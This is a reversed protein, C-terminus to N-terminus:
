WDALSIALRYFLDIPLWRIASNCGIRPIARVSCFLLMLKMFGIRHRSFGLTTLLRKAPLRLFEDEQMAYENLTFISQNHLKVFHLVSKDPQSRYWLEITQIVALRIVTIVGDDVNNPETHDEQLWRLLCSILNQHEQQISLAVSADRSFERLCVIAFYKANTPYYDLSNDSDVCKIIADMLSSERYLHDLEEVSSLLQSLALFSWPVTAPFCTPKSVLSILVSLLRENEIMIALYTNDIGMNVILGIIWQLVEQHRSLGLEEVLTSVMLPQCLAAVYRHDSNTINNMLGLAVIKIEVYDDGRKQIKSMLKPFLAPINALIPVYFQTRSLNRLVTLAKRQISLPFEIEGAINLSFLALADIIIRIQQSTVGMQEFISQVLEMGDRFSSVQSDDLETVSCLKDLVIHVDEFIADNKANLEDELRKWRARTAIRDYKDLCKQLIPIIENELYLHVDTPRDTVM